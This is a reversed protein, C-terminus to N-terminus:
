ARRRGYVTLVPALLAPDNHDSLPVKLHPEGVLVGHLPRRQRQAPDRGERYGNLFPKLSEKVTNFSRTLAPNSADYDSVPRPENDTIAPSRDVDTLTKEITHVQYPRVHGPPNMAQLSGNRRNGTSYYMWTMTDDVDFSGTQTPERPEATAAQFFSQYNWSRHEPQRPTASDTLYLGGERPALLEESHHGYLTIFSDTICPTFRSSDNEALDILTTTDFLSRQM